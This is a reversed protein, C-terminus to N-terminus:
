ATDATGKARGFPAAEEQFLELVAGPGSEDRLGVTLMPGNTTRVNALRRPKWEAQGLVHRITTIEEVVGERVREPTFKAGHCQPCLLREPFVPTGCGDCRFIQVGDTM